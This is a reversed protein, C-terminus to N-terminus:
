GARSERGEPSCPLFNFNEKGHGGARFVSKSGLLILIQQDIEVM